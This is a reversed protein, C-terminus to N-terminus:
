RQRFLVTQIRWRRTASLCRQTARLSAPCATNVRRGEYSRSLGERATM